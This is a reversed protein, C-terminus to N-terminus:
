NKKLLIKQQSLDYAADIFALMKEWNAAAEYYHNYTKNVAIIIKGNQLSAKSTFSGTENEINKDLNELGEATFGDPVQITLVYEFSRAYPMYINNKRVRQENKIQLQGTILSGIDIIYNNGAKKVLGGISLKENFVFDTQDHRNGTQVVNFHDLTIAKSEFSSELEGKAYEERKKRASEFAQQYEQLLQTGRKKGVRAVVEDSFTREGLRTREQDVYEEFLTLLAQHEYAPNGRITKVRVINLQQPNTKDISVDLKEQTYNFSPKTYPLKEVASKTYSGAFTTNKFVFAEQGEFQSPFSNAITYMGPPVLYYDNKGKARIFFVFDDVSVANYITGISRPVTFIIDYDIDFENFAGLLYSYFNYNVSAANREIGIEIKSESMYDYLFSYRGYYYIYQILSDINVEKLKREKKIKKIYDKVWSVREGGESGYNVTSLLRVSLDTDIWEKSLGKLVQGKAPMSSKRGGSSSVGPFINIKFVPYERRDYVWLDDPTKNLDQLDMKLYIFDDDRTEKPDPAGNATTYIVAFDKRIKTNFSYKVIPYEGGMVIDLPEIPNASISEKEVRSYMDIIDGVQLGPIALKYKEKEDENQTNVAEEDIDVKKRTGDPKIISIGVFTYALTKYFSSQNRMKSFSFESYENLSNKDQIKIKERVTLSYRITNTVDRGYFISFKVKSKFDSFLDIKKAIVVASAISYAAPVTNNVFAPDPVGLIEDEVERAREMYKKDTSTQAQSIYCFCTIITICLGTLKTNRM